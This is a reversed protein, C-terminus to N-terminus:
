RRRYVSHWRVAGHVRQVVCRSFSDRWRWWWVLGVVVLTAVVAALGAEGHRLYATALLAGPITGRWCRM